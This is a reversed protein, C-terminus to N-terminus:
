LSASSQEDNANPGIAGKTGLRRDDAELRFKTSGYCFEARVDGKRRLAYFVLGAFVLLIALIFVVLITTLFPSLAPPNM